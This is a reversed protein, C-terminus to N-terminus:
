KAKRASGLMILNHALVDVGKEKTARLTGEVYLRAGKRVYKGVVEALKGVTVVAHWDTTKLLAGTKRDREARNIALRLVATPGGDGESTRPDAGVVGLLTVKCLDM